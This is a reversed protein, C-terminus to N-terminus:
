FELNQFPDPENKISQWNFDYRHEEPWDPGRGFLM